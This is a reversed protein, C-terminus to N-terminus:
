TEEEETGPCPTRTRSRALAFMEDVTRVLVDPEIPKELFGDVDLRGGVDPSAFTKHMKQGIASVVLIASQRTEPSSRLEDCVAFGDEPAMLLDVLIVAPRQTRAAEIGEPCQTIGIVEHGRKELVMRVYNVFDPDDDIILVKGLNQQM